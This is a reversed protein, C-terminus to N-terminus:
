ENTQYQNENGNQRSRIRFKTAPLGVEGVVLLTTGPTPVAIITVVAFEDDLIAAV